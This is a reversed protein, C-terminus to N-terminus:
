QLRKSIENALLQVTGKPMDYAIVSNASVYLMLNYPATLDDAGRFDTRYLVLHKGKAFGYGVEWCTGSDPDPGDMCAVIVECKDLGAVDYSFAEEGSSTPHEQPLFVEHERKRLQAALDANFAREALTFLPGALYIKM